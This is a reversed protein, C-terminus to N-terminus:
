LEVDEYLETIPFSLGVSAFEVVSREGEFTFLEWRQHENFRYIEVLYQTPDILVYERLSPLLRYAAFKKGRDYDETSPSLVEIVLIPSEKHMNYQRDQPDCTVMVDPYFWCQSTRTKINVRMDAMYLSCGTGRLHTKLAYHANGSVKVHADSAGAMNTMPDSYLPYVFGELYEHKEASQAEATLYDEASVFPM